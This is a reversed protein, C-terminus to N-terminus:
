WGKTIQFSILRGYPDANAADYGSSTNVWPPDEDFINVANFVLTTDGFWGSDSPTRYSLGVDVTTWSGIERPATVSGSGQAFQGGPDDYAPSYNLTAHAGWGRHQWSATGRLRLSPPNDFADLIDVSPAGRVAARENEFTYNGNIGFSLAGIRTYLSQEVSFDLGRVSMLALNRLRFDVIVGPQLTGACSTPQPNNPPGICLADIEAQTPNRNIISAWIDEEFLVSDQRGPTGGTAVRDKYEIDYYTLSLEFGRTFEPRLDLGTTWVTATEERLAPNVGQVRIGRTVGTPSEPDPFFRIFAVSRNFVTDELDVLRPAKFSTGWTARLRVAPTILWGLGVKPDLTTGFDSYREYRAALSAALEHVGPLGSEAGVLPLALEAFAASINRAMGGSVRLTGNGSELEEERYDAGIALKATGGPLTFVPGDLLVGGAWVTSMAGERQVDRIQALTAPNTHSGDGFPNFATAPDPDALAADLALFDFTLGSWELNERAYSATLKTQWEGGMRVIAGLSSGYSETKGENTGPLDDNMSYQVPVFSSGGFPDVFFPNSDPVFLFAGIVTPSASMDRRSYRGDAFLAVREGLDQSVHFFASNMKQKPVLDQGEALNRFNTVGPLLDDATLSTGDQGPPIAFAPEFTNPDLMNGPNSFMTSFNDGGFRRQDSNASYVRDTYGLADRTYYQYGLLGNGSAWSAGLLQSAQVETGDGGYTGVWANTEAGDFDKRLVINVVGGIADSGYIASAGDTLVEIREVAASPISSIDVFTGTTGSPAQRIGNVLVLTAGTGAGRLNVGAGQGFNGQARDQGRGQPTDGGPGGQFNQPLTKLVDQVTAYGSMDMYDRDIVIVKSGASEVGRIHTGTVVIEGLDIREQPSAPQPESEAADRNSEPKNDDAQTLLLRDNPPDRSMSATEGAAHTAGSASDLRASKEQRIAVTREDLAQYTLGTGQLLVDLAEDMAHEGRVGRTELGGLLESPAALQVSAQESFRLLATSLPQAPIDFQVRRSLDVAAAVLNAALLGGTLILAAITGRWRQSASEPQSMQPKCGVRRLQKIM